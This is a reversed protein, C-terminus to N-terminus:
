RRARGARVREARDGASRSGAAQLEQALELPIVTKEDVVMGGRSTDQLYAAGNKGVAVTVM